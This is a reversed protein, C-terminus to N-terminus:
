DGVVTSQRRNVTASLVEDYLELLRLTVVPWAFEHEVITRGEAGMTQLRDRNVLAERIAAALAEGDGPPILWGNLGPKVKDPLGGARTAVVARRHAMAELTVLSSGEYLTPHVLLTAAEYWAQLEGESVRGPLVVQSELGNSAVTRELRTRYPGDGVLVCRWRDGLCSRETSRSATLLGLASVLVDFGKNQELRGVGLLLVDDPGLGLRQRLGRAADANTLRDLEELDIGNPVVSIRREEVQLHRLVTPVLVRDTAIIRDAARACHRVAAQLPRYALRKLPARAPDTAGFEELGQPNFVFPVTGLWDRRRAGAYGLASAGLGHVIQIGGSRVLRAALRGARWGFLPYASSRDLVTTGRRGAFPFTLYPVFRREIRDDDLRASVTPSADYPRQTILTVRVGRKLLHRVLDHVHRELGGMGHLPWVARALVLVHLDEPKM